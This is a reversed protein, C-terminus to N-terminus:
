KRKGGHLLDKVEDDSPKRGSDGIFQADDTADRADDDGQRARRAALELPVGELEEFREPIDNANRGPFLHDILPHQEGYKDRLREREETKGRQVDESLEPKDFVDKTDPDHIHMLLLAEAPTINTLLVTMGPNGSVRMLAKMTQM